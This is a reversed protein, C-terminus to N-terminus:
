KRGKRRGMALVDRETPPAKPDKVRKIEVFDYALDEGEHKETYMVLAKLQQDQGEMYGVVVGPEWMGKFGQGQIRCRSKIGPLRKLQKKLDESVRRVDLAFETFGIRDALADVMENLKRSSIDAM